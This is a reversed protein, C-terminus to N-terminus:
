WWPLVQSSRRRRAQGDVEAFLTSYAEVIWGPVQEYGPWGADQVLTAGPRDAAEAALRVADDYTGTIATVQAGEAAIAAVAMPHVGSPVLVRARQGSLGPWGPWRGDTIAM